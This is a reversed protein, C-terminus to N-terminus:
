SKSDMFRQLVSLTAPNLTHRNAGIKVSRSDIIDQVTKMLASATTISALKQSILDAQSDQLYYEPALISNNKSITSLKVVCVHPSSSVHRVGEMQTSRVDDVIKNRIEAVLESIQKELSCVENINM